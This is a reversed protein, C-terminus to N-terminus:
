NITGQKKQDVEKMGKTPFDWIWGNKAMTVALHVPTMHWTDGMVLEEAPRPILRAALRVQFPPLFGGNYLVPISPVKWVIYIYLMHLTSNNQQTKM